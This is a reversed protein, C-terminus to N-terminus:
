AENEDRETQAAEIVLEPNKGIWGNNYLQEIMRILVLDRALMWDVRMMEDGDEFVTIYPDLTILPPMNAKIAAMNAKILATRFEYPKTTRFFNRFFRQDDLANIYNALRDGLTRIEAIRNENMRIVKRLFLEVLNWSVLNADTALSYHATPDDPAARRPLRLFHARVFARTGEPLRFIDEYLRNYKPTFPEDSATKGRKPQPPRQWARRAIANWADQYAGGSVTALFDTIQLPLHYIALPPNKEDLPNSQGSNSLHYATVAAPQEDQQADRRQEEIELFTEILLTRPNRPAEPMKSSGAAKAQAIAQNNAKWFKQAFNWMLEPNDSHVGLLRGGCKACGMPFFQICLLAKGSVPLGADGGAVFNIVERGNLLPVHERFARGPPLSDDVSWSVASAPEGTFVCTEDTQATAYQHAVKQAYLQRKEPQSEFAPQTFGSNVFAVNLFSKLPQVTYEAAIFDAVAQLDAEALEEPQMTNRFALIAAIGIDVLPHGTYKLM